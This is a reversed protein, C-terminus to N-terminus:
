LRGRGRRLPEQVDPRRLLEYAMRDATKPSYGACIAAQVDANSLLRSGRLDVADSKKLNKFRVRQRRSGAHQRKPAWLHGTLASWAVEAM